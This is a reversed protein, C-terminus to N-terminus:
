VIYSASYDGRVDANAEREARSMESDYTLTAKHVSPISLEGNQLFNSSRFNMRVTSCNDVATLEMVCM